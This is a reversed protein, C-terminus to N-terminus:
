FYTLILAIGERHVKVGILIGRIGIADHGNGCRYENVLVTIDYRASLTSDFRFGQAFPDVHDLSVDRKTLTVM